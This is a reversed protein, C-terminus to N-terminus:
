SDPARDVQAVLAIIFNIGFDPYFALYKEKLTHFYFLNSTDHGLFLKIILFM